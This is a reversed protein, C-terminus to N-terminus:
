PSPNDQANFGKSRLWRQGVETLFFDFMENQCRPCEDLSEFAPAPKPSNSSVRAVRNWRVGLRTTWYDSCVPEAEPDASRLVGLANGYRHSPCKINDFDLGLGYAERVM